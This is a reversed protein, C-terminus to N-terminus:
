RTRKSTAKSGDGRILELGTVSNGAVNFRIRAGPDESFSFENPGIPIMSVKPGGKRQYSLKGGEVSVLREGYDGAYNTLPLATAVPNIQGELLAAQAELGKKEDGSAASALKRLAHGQAVELAKDVDAKTTPAIGVGEWDKGTSALVARGVSVSMVYGGAVPFFTNRFGAGATNEGIIEGLKFGAVHGTFEEAASATGGSTLVYLPKGVLRKGPLSALSSRKDVKEAGMYFTVIPRNPELFYSIMHQVADPSGGGNHRMDIIVADGDKLFRMADDYVQATKEGGWFFGITDMYRINGPLVKLEMIGHNFQLARKMEEAGPPADDDGGSAPQAALQASRAADHRISLHKDHAVASMDENIRDALVAPDDVNYRGSALSKALAADLRPRVDALVYNAALIRRVDAIVSKAAVKSASATATPATHAAAGTTAMGLAGAGILISVYRM